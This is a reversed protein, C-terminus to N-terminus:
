GQEKEEMLPLLDLVLCLPGFAVLKFQHGYGRGVSCDSAELKTETSSRLCNECEDPKLDIRCQVLGYTMTSNKYVEKGSAFRQPSTTADNILRDMLRWRSNNMTVVDEVYAIRIVQFIRGQDTESTVFPQNSYRFLCRDYMLGGTLGNPCATSVYSPALELFKKCEDWLSTIYCM